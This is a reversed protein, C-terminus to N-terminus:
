FENTIKRRFRIKNALFNSVNKIQQSKLNVNSSM